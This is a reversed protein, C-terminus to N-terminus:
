LNKSHIIDELLNENYNFKNFVSQRNGLSEDIKFGQQKYGKLRDVYMNSLMKV